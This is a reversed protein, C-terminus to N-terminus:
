RLAFFPYTGTISPSEGPSTISGPLLGDAATGVAAGHYFQMYAGAQTVALVATTGTGTLAFYYKGPDLRVSSGSTIAFDKEGATTLYQLGVHAQLEGSANYIGVDYQCGSGGCGTADATSVFFLMRSFVVPSALYFGYAKIQNASALAWSGSRNQASQYFSLAPLDSGALARFGPVASSGSAPGALVTNAAQGNASVSITGASTLPSGTVTFEVPMSLGVSSVGGGSSGACTVSGDLNLSQVLQGGASCDKAQIGGKTTLTPNPLWAPELVGTADSKPVANPAATATGIEDSGGHQHSAAHAASVTQGVWEMQVCTLGDDDFMTTGTARLVQGEGPQGSLVICGDAAQEPAGHIVFGHGGNVGLEPLVITSIRNGDGCSLTGNLINCDAAMVNGSADYIAVGGTRVNAGAMQFKTGDGQRDSTKSQTRLDVRTQGFAGGVVVGLFLACRFLKNATM